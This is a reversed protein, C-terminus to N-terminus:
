KKLALTANQGVVLAGLNSAATPLNVKNNFPTTGVTGTGVGAFAVFGPDVTITATPHAMVPIGALNPVLRLVCGVCTAGGVTVTNTGLGFAVLSGGQLTFSSGIGVNAFAGTITLTSGNALAILNGTITGKAGGVFNFLNGGVTLQSANLQVAAQLVLQDNPINATLRANLGTISAFDGTTKMKSNILSVLPSSAALLAPDLATASVAQVVVASQAVVGFNTDTSAGSSSNIIEILPPVDPRAFGTPAGTPQPDGPLLAPPGTPGTLQGDFVTMLSLRVTNDEPSISSGNVVALARDNLKVKAMNFTNGLAVNIGDPIQDTGAITSGTTNDIKTNDFPTLDRVNRGIVAVISSDYGTVNNLTAATPAAVVSSNSLVVGSPLTVLQGGTASRAQLVANVGEQQQNQSLDALVSETSSLFFNKALTQVQLSRGNLIIPPNPQLFGTFTNTDIPNVLPSSAYQAMISLGQQPTAANTYIVAQPVGTSNRDSSFPILLNRGPGEPASSVNYGTLGNVLLRQTPAVGQHPARSTNGSDVLLLETNSLNNEAGVALFQLGNGNDITRNLTVRSDQFTLLGGGGPIFSSATVPINNIQRFEISLGSNNSPDIVSTGAAAVLPPPGALNGTPGGLLSLLQAQGGPLNTGLTTSLIAGQARGTSNTSEADTTGMMANVLLDAQKMHLAVLYELGTVPTNAHSVNAAVSRPDSSPGSMSSPMGLQGGIVQIGQGASLPVQKGASQVAATGEVVHFTETRGSPAAAQLWPSFSVPIIQALGPLSSRPDKGQEVSILIIGGRTAAAATPTQLTVVENAGLASGATTVRSTGDFLSVVLRNGVNETLRFRAPGESSVLAYTGWLIEIHSGKPVVIEEGPAVEDRFQITRGSGTQGQVRGTALGNVETVTGHPSAEIRIGRQSDGAWAAPGVLNICLVSLFPMLISLMWSKGTRMM